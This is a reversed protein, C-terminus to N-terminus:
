DEEYKPATITTVILEIGYQDAEEMCGSYDRADKYSDFPGVTGTVCYGNDEYGYTSCILILYKEM